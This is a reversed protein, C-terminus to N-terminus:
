RGYYQEVKVIAATVDMAEREGYNENLYLMFSRDRVARANPTDGGDALYRKVWPWDAVVYQYHPNLGIGEQQVALAFEVKPCAIREVDVLIPYVFPSDGPSYGYPRCIGAEESLRGSLDAVFALRRVITDNIRRLSALGIACSIEDSHHNLAPFLFTGPNRDDFDPRWRPKGRDAYALARRFLELDRSYVVGGSPGTIHAKRYMTSFAAIDGFTGVPRGAVTAAHAQSCDEVVRIDRERAAAVIQEIECAQGLSHVIVAARTQPTIRERFQAAGINYSGPTSDALRPRLRNLIIASIAGPDTIPSVLVESGEPLELAALAVFLASTGTAVADAYGGGMMAVFADTYMKEFSGQYGPDLLQGRYFTIVEEIMKVEAEGLAFRPPMPGKRVPEGGHIALAPVGVQSGGRGASM